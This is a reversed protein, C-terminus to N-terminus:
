IDNIYQFGQQMPGKQKENFAKTSIACVKKVYVGNQKVENYSVNYLTYRIELGYWNRQWTGLTM